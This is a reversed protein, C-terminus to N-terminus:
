KNWNERRENPLRVKGYTYLGLKGITMLPQARTTCGPAGRIGAQHIRALVPRVGRM